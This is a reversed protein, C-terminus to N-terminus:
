FERSDLRKSNNHNQPLMDEHKCETRNMQIWKDKVQLIAKNKAKTKNQATSPISSMTKWKSPLHDGVRDMCDARKANTIKSIPDQKIGQCVQIRIRRNTSGQRAPNITCTCGAM